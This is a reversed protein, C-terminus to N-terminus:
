RNEEYFNKLDMLEMEHLELLDENYVQSYFYNFRKREAESRKVRDWWEVIQERLKDVFLKMNEQKILKCRKLETKIRDISSQSVNKGMKRFSNRMSDPEDLCDWLMELKELMHHSEQLLAAKQDQLVKLEDKLVTLNSM